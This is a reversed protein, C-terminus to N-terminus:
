GIIATKVVEKSKLYYIFEYDKGGLKEGKSSEAKIIFDEFDVDSDFVYFILKDNDSFDRTKINFNFLIDDKLQQEEVKYCQDPIEDFGPYNKVVNNNSTFSIVGFDYKVCVTDATYYDDGLMVLRGSNLSNEKIEGWLEFTVNDEIKNLYLNIVEKDEIMKYELSYKLTYHNENNIFLQYNFGEELKLSNTGPAFENKHFLEFDIRDVYCGEKDMEKGKLEKYKNYFFIKDKKYILFLPESLCKKIEVEKYLKFDAFIEEKSDVDFMSIFFEKQIIPTPEPEEKDFYGKKYLYFGTGSVGAIIIIILIIVILTKRDM